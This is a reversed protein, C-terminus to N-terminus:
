NMLSKGCRSVGAARTVVLKGLARDCLAVSHANDRAIETVQGTSALGSKYGTAFLDDVANM